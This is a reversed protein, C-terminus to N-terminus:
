TNATGSTPPITVPVDIVEGGIKVERELIMSALSIFSTGINDGRKSSVQYVKKSFTIKEASSLSMKYIDNLGIPSENNRQTLDFKTYIVIYMRAPNQAFLLTKWKELSREKEEKSLTDDIFIIAASSGEFYPDYVLEPPGRVLGIDWMGLDISKVIVPTEKAGSGTVTIEFRFRTAKFNVDITPNYKDDFKFTHSGSGSDLVRNFYTTKGSGSDGVFIVKHSRIDM